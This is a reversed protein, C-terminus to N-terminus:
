SKCNALEKCLFEETKSYGYKEIFDSIDKVEYKKDIVINYIDEIGKLSDMLLKSNTIGAGDNDYFIVIKKFRKKLELIFEPKIKATESHPAIAPIGLRYLVMVDKLSKTVVLLDGKDPLQELGQIDSAECNSRWKNIGKEFPRYIKFHNHIKYAFMISKDSYKWKVIDNLLYYSISFVKFKKLIKECIHYRAWYAKDNDTFPQRVIGIKTNGRLYEHTPKRYTTSVSGVISKIKAIASSFNCSEMIKVFDVVSGSENTAFDHFILKNSAKAYYIGFSPNKDKRFPSQIVSGIKIPGLYSKYIDYEPLRNIFNADKYDIETLSENINYM